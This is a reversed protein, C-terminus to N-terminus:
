MFVVKTLFLNVYYFGYQSLIDIVPPKLFMKIAEHYQAQESKNVLLNKFLFNNFCIRLGDLIEVCINYSCFFFCVIIQYKFICIHLCFLLFVSQKEIQTKDFVKHAYCDKESLTRLLSCNSFNTRALYKLYNEFLM